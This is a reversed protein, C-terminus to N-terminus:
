DMLPNNQIEFCGKVSTSSTLSRNENQLLDFSSSHLDGTDSVIFANYCFICPESRFLNKRLYKAAYYYKM